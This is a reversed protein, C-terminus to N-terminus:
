TEDWGRRQREAFRSAIFALILGGFAFIVGTVAMILPIIGLEVKAANLGFGGAAIVASIAIIWLGLRVRGKWFDPKVLREGTLVLRFHEVVRALEENAGTAVPIRLEGFQTVIQSGSSRWQGTTLATAFRLALPSDPITEFGHIHALGSSALGFFTEGVLVGDESFIVEVGASPTTKPLRWDNPGNADKRRAEDERFREFTEPSVTWRAIVGEGRRLRGVIRVAWLFNILLLPGFVVGIIGVAVAISTGPPEGGEAIMTLAGWALATASGVTVGAAILVSRDPRTVGASM